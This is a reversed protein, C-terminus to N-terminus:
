QECDGEEGEKRRLRIRGGGKQPMLLKGGIRKHDHPKLAFHEEAPLVEEVEIKENDM